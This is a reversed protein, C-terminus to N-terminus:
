PTALYIIAGYDFMAPPAGDGTYLSSISGDLFVADNCHFRGILLDALGAHTSNEALVLVVTGDSRVCVANRPIRKNFSAPFRRAAKGGAVLMPGSQTALTITARLPRTRAFERASDVHARGNAVYFVANPLCYFNVACRNPDKASPGAGLVLRSLEIGNRIMLGSPRGNKQFIGANTAVRIRRGNARVSSDLAAITLARKEPHPAPAIQLRRVSAPPIECATVTSGDVQSTSCTTVADRRATKSGASASDVAAPTASDASATDRQSHSACALALIGIALTGARV